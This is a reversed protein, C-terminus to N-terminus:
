LLIFCESQSDFTVHSIKVLPIVKIKNNNLQRSTEFEPKPLYWELHENLSLQLRRYVITNSLQSVLYRTFM